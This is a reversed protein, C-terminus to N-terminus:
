IPSRHRYGMRIIRSLHGELYAHQSFPEFFETASMIMHLREEPPLSRYDYESLYDPHYTVMKYFEEESRIKPLAEILPNDRYMPLVQDSYEALVKEGTFVDFADWNELMDDWYFDDEFNFPTENM